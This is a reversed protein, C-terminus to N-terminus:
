IRKSAKANVRTGGGCACCANNATVGAHPFRSGYWQCRKSGSQAYWLCNYTVDVLNAEDVDKDDHYFGGNDTCGNNRPRKGAKGTAAWTSMMGSIFDFHDRVRQNVGAPSNPACGNNSWSM